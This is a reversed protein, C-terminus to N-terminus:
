PNNVAETLENVALFMAEYFWPTADRIAPRFYPRPPINAENGNWPLITRGGFEQLRAYPVRTGYVLVIEDASERWELVQEIGAFNSREGMLSRSLRGPDFPAKRDYDDLLGPGLRLPGMDSPNRWQHEGWAPRMYQGSTSIEGIHRWTASLVSRVVGPLLQKFAEVNGVDAVPFRAVLANVFGDNVYLIKGDTATTYNRSPGAKPPLGLLQLDIM